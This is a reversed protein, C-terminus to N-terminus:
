SVKRKRSLGTLLDLMETFHFLSILGLSVPLAAYIWSMSIEMAPAGQWSVRTALDAGKVMLVVATLLSVANAFL